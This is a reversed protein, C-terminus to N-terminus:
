GYKRRTNKHNSKTGCSISKPYITVRHGIKYLRETCARVIMEATVRGEGMSKFTM